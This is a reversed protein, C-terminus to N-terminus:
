GHRTEGNEAARGDPEDFEYRGSSMADDAVLTVSAHSWAVSEALGPAM